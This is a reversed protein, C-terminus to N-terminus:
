DLRYMASVSLCLNNVPANVNYELLLADNGIQAYIQSSNISHDCSTSVGLCKNASSFSAPAVPLSSVIIKPYEKNDPATTNFDVEFTINVVNGIRSWICPIQGSVLDGGSSFGDAAVVNLTDTGSSITNTPNTSVQSVSLNQANLVNFNATPYFSNPNTLRETM